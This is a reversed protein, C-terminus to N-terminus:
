HSKPRDELDSIRGTAAELELDIARLGASHSKVRMDTPSAWKHFETLLKTEMSHLERSFETSLRAETGHIEQSIWDKDERTLSM